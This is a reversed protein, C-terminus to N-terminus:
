FTGSFITRFLFGLAALQHSQLVQQELQKSSTVSSTLQLPLLHAAVPQSQQVQLVPQQSFTGSSMPRLFCELSVALLSQRTPQGLPMSSIGSSTLRLLLHAAVPQSQRVQLVPQKSSTGSSMPRLVCKLSVVLLAQRMPRGPQKSFTRPAIESLLRIPEKDLAVVLHSQRVQQGLQKSFTAPAIVGLRGFEEVLRSQQVQQVPQKPFTESSISHLSYELAVVLLSQWM